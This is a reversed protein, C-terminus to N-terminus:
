GESTFTRSVLVEDGYTYNVTMKIGTFGTKEELQKCLDVYTSKQDDVSAELKEIMEPEKLIKEDAVNLSSLDYSYTVDNGKIEVSLGASDAANQIEEKVDDNSQLFDELTEAKKACSTLGLGFLLSLALVLAIVSKKVM